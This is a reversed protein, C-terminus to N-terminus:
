YVLGLNGQTVNERRERLNRPGLFGLDRNWGLTSYRDRELELGGVLTKTSTMCLQM